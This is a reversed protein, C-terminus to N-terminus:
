LNKEIWQSTLEEYMNNIVSYIDAMLREVHFDEELYYSRIGGIPHLTDYIIDVHLNSESELFERFGMLSHYLEDKSNYVDDRQEGFANLSIHGQGVAFLVDPVIINNTKRIYCVRCYPVSVIHSSYYAMDCFPCELLMGKDDCSPCLESDEQTTDDGTVYHENCHFCSKDEVTM